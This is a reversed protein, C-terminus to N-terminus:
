FVLNKSVCGFILYCCAIGVVFAVKSRSPLPLTLWPICKGLDPLTSHSGHPHSPVEVLQPEAEHRRSSIEAIDDQPAKVSEIGNSQTVSTKDHNVLDYVYTSMLHFEDEEHSPPFSWDPDM